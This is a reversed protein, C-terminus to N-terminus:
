RIMGVALTAWLVGVAVCGVIEIWLPDRSM